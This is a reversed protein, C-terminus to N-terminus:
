SVRRARLHSGSALITATGSSTGQAWRLKVDGANAGNAVFGFVLSLGTGGPGGIIKEGGSVTSDGVELDANFGAATDDLGMQGYRQTAGAPFTIAYRFDGATAANTFLFLEFVWTENAGIAFFLDDDDQVATSSTVSENAAKLKVVDWSSLRALGAALESATIRKNTGEAAMTTDSDDLVEFEDAAALNAGTLAALDSIQQDAM